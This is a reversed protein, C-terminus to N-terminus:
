IIIGQKSKGLLIIAATAVFHFFIGDKGTASGDVDLIGLADDSEM